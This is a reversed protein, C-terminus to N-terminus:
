RFPAFVFFFSPHIDLRPTHTRSGGESVRTGTSSVGEQLGPYATLYLVYEGRINSALYIASDTKSSARVMVASTMDPNSCATVVLFLDLIFVPLRVWLARPLDHKPRSINYAIKMFSM